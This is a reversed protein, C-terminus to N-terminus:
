AISQTRAHAAHIAMHSTQRIDDDLIQSARALMRITRSATSTGAVNSKSRVYKVSNGMLTNANLSICANEAHTGRVQSQNTGHHERTAAGLVSLIIITGGAVRSTEM